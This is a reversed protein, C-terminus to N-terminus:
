TWMLNLLISVIVLRKFCLQPYIQIIIELSFIQVEHLRFLKTIDFGFQCFIDM